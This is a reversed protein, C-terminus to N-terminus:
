AQGADSLESDVIQDFPLDRSILGGSLLAAKLRVFAAVPLASTLAWVGANRYSTIIRALARPDFDPFFSGIATAISDPSATHFRSQAAAMGRVLHRCVERNAAAFGKRTYFTTYAIDGRSSFRHWVHCGATVLEDVYPEFVQVVDAENARLAAASAAMLLTPTRNLSAPNLGARTLDDQLMMWPTPVETAIGVRCNLLDQFRFDPNPERGVLVFPDRAVIQAFCVLPCAPDAEYHMMVRMPGGWAVDAAGELLMSGTRSPSPSTILAIEIGADSFHNEALAMYFPAYGLARMNECLRICLM